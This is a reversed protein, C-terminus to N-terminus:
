STLGLPVIKQHTGEFNRLHRFKTRRLPLPSLKNQKFIKGQELAYIYTNTGGELSEDASASKVTKETLAYVVTTNPRLEDNM